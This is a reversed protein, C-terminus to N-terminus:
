KTVLLPVSQKRFQIPSLNVSVRLPPQGPRQWSRAERCAARLVWENIPVILGNEEARALFEGPGVIGKDPRRWRLLAEAGTVRGTSPDVQPQSHLVVRGQARAG